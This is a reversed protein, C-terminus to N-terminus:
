NDDLSAKSLGQLAFKARIIFHKNFLPNRIIVCVRFERIELQLVTELLLVGESFSSFYFCAHKL